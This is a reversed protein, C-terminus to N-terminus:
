RGEQDLPGFVTDVVIRAAGINSRVYAGARYSAAKRCDDKGLMDMCVAFDSASRVCFAGGCALLDVAEGFKRYRPGFVVALSYVAPELINHIGKGFGGGVYALDAYRYMRSLLGMKDVVLVDAEAAREPEDEIRSYFVYRFPELKKELSQLRRADLEHPVLVWAWDKGHDRMYPLVVMEDEPWSSGMMMVKKGSVFSELVPFVSDQALIGTVRDFRTDGCRVVNKVGIEQLLGVSGEDQVLFGSARRLQGAFWAGYPRFFYQNRRFRSAFFYFPIGKRALVDMFNFWYEYKVFFVKDPRVSEVFREANLPTDLPMYVIEDALTKKKRVHVYGSPSFFSLLIRCESFRSKCAQMVPVAQEYEGMSAVHFWILPSGARLSSAGQLNEMWNRRGEIWAKAKPNWLAALRVMGGYIRVGLTYIFRM